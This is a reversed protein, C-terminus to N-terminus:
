TSAVEGPLHRKVQAILEAPTFPKMVLGVAGVQQTRARADPSHASSVCLVVINQTLPNAKIQQCVEYGSMMPMMIDLLIMDPQESEAVELASIGDYALMVQFGESQLAREMLTVVDPEDDVILIRKGAVNGDWDGRAAAAL